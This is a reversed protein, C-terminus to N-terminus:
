TSHARSRYRQQRSAFTSHESQNYSKEPLKSPDAKGTHLLQCDEGQRLTSGKCNSIALHRGSHEHFPCLTTLHQQLNSLVYIYIYITSIIHIYIYNYIYIGNYIMTDFYNCWLESAEASEVRLRGAGLLHHVQQSWRNKEHHIFSVFHGHSFFSSNCPWLILNFV